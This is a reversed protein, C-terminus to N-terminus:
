PVNLKGPAAAPSESFHLRLYSEEHPPPFAWQSLFRERSQEPGVRKEMCSSLSSELNETTTEAM